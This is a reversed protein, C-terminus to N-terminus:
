GKRYSQAAKILTPVAIMLLFLVIPISSARPFLILLVAALLMIAGVIFLLRAEAPGLKSKKAIASSISTAANLARATVKRVSGGAGRRQRRRPRRVGKKRVTDELVIEVSNAIDRLFMEEMQAGFEEDEVLVDLEYNGFWSAINLNTSGVRSHRGDFVATKAHMMPGNWEFVRIGADLLPRYTSRTTDRIIGIDTSQPVLIRVDVGDAAADKLSQLYSPVGVFYADTLWISEDAVTALLQDTRYIHAAGPISQVVRLANGGTHGIEDRRSFRSTDLPEGITKWVEAFAAEVDAVAPGTLKVGTDRWPPIDREPYGVWEHGVCLGGVFAIRGDVIITKRHDRTVIGLPDLLRPPNYCRVEIGNQRLHRWFKRSTNGLGGLWDYVLKVEVGEKAKKIMEEAFLHGQTDEHIIYSEFLIRKEASRIAELWAPYNETADRLLEVDNGVILDAGTVREISDSISFLDDKQQHLNVGRIRARDTKLARM